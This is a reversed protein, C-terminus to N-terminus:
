SIPKPRPPFKPIPVSAMKEHTAIQSTVEFFQYPFPFSSYWSQDPLPKFNDGFLGNFVTRFSNVPTIGPYLNKKVSDPVYYASLNPFCENVDTHELTAQDLRMKSGHDGQILIIPRTGREAFLADVAKLVRKGLYDAQSTYGKRYQEPSGVHDMYDSGDWFGFPSQPPLQEGDSGIVFPPHPALIHVMVFRPTVSKAALSELQDFANVLNSRREQFMRQLAYGDNALPTMQIFASEILSFGARTKMNVDASPFQLPPFGTTIAAFIYGKKRLYDAVANHNLLDDLPSRDGDKPTMKPLLNQIFDMNLSSSVSLETQCYNAHADKAVYFGRQELGAIFSDNSYGLARKLADSRGYGDLIIYIIDPRDKNTGGDATTTVVRGAVNSAAKWLGSAIQATAAVVLCAGLVNLIKHWRWFITLVAMVILTLGIWTGFIYGHPLSQETAFAVFRSYMLFCGVFASTAIAGRKTSRLILSLIGWIAFTAILVVCVPRIMMRWPVLSLNASYISLLPFLAFCIPYFIRERKPSPEPANEPTVVESM